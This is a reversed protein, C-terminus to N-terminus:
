GNPPNEPRDEAAVVAVVVAVIIVILPPVFSFPLSCALMKVPKLPNLEKLGAPSFVPVVAVVFASDNAAVVLLKALPMEAVADDDSNM